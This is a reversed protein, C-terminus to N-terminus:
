ILGGMRRYEEPTTNTIKKFMRTYYQQSNFGIEESINRQTKTTTILLEQAKEVRKRNIFEMPRMGTISKFQRTFHDTSCCALSALAELRIEEYLHNSIFEFTKKIFSQKQLHLTGSSGSQIFRSFLQKIIGETELQISNSRHDLPNRKWSSKEYINPDSYKLGLTPNIELLRDFLHIDIPLSKVEQAMSLQDFIKLGDSMQHSFHLYYHSLNEVCHYGCLTYSPVLYMFGPKLQLLKNDPFIYGEGETILYIRSFPSIINSYNWEQEVTCKATNFIHIKIENILGPSIM